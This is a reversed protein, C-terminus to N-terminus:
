ESTTEAVYASLPKKMTVQSWIDEDVAPKSEEIWVDISKALEKLQESKLLSQKADELSDEDVEQRCGIFVGQNDGVYVVESVEGIELGNMAANFEALADRQDGEFYTHLATPYGYQAAATDFDTGSSATKYVNNFSEIVNETDESVDNLDTTGADEGFSGYVYSYTKAEGYEVEVDKTLKALTKSLITYDELVQRVVAEDAMMADLAEQSNSAMFLEVAEDIAAKESDSLKIGLEKQNQRALSMRVLLNVISEKMNEQFSRDGEYIHLNYWNPGYVSKQMDQVIAQQFKVLFYAKKLPIEDKGVTLVISEPDLGDYLDEEAQVTVSAALLIIAGLLAILKKWIHKM